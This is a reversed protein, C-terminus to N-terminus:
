PVYESASCNRWDQAEMPDYESEGETYNAMADVYCKLYPCALSSSYYFAEGCTKVPDRGYVAIGNMYQGWCWAMTWSSWYVPLNCHMGIIWGAFWHHFHFYPSTMPPILFLVVCLTVEVVKIGLLNHAVIYRLHLVVVVSVLVGVGLLFFWTGAPWVCHMNYLTVSQQLAPFLSEFSSFMGSGFAVLLWAMHDVGRQRYLRGVVFFVITDMLIAQGDYLLM